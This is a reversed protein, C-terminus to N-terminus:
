TINLHFQYGCTVLEVDREICEDLVTFLLSHCAEYIVESFPRFFGSLSGTPSGCIVKQRLVHNEDECNSLKEEFSLNFCAVFFSIM